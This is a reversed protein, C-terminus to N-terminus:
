CNLNLEPALARYTPYDTFNGVGLHVEAIIRNIPVEAILGPHKSQENPLPFPNYEGPGRWLLSRCPM